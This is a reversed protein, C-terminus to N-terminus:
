QINKQYQSQYQNYFEPVSEDIGTVDVGNGAKFVSLTTSSLVQNSISIFRQVLDKLRFMIVNSWRDDFSM